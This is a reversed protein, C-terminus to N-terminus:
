ITYRLIYSFGNERTDDGTCMQNIIIIYMTPVDEVEEDDEEVIIVVDQAVFKDGPIPKTSPRRREM